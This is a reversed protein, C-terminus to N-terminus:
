HARNRAIRALEVLHVFLLARFGMGARCGWILWIVSAFPAWLATIALLLVLFVPVVPVLCLLFIFVTTRVYCDVIAKNLGPKGAFQLPTLCTTMLGMVPILTFILLIAFVAAMLLAALRTTMRVPCTCRRFRTELVLAQHRRRRVEATNLHHRPDTFQNCGSDPNTPSYHWGVGGEITQGCIWCWDCKCHQCTMHNCGGNKETEFNCRPCSKTGFVSANARTERILRAEYAKCNGDQRHAWSHYFCFEAGCGGEGSCKMEAQPRGEIRDPKCLKRCAPCERLDEDARKAAFLHLKRVVDPQDALLSAVEDTSAVAATELEGCKGASVGVPCFLEEVRGDEIRGKFYIQMCQHCTRHATDNCAAVVKGSRLAVNEYCVPCLFTAEPEATPDAVREWVWRNLSANSTLTSAVRELPQRVMTRRDRLVDVSVWGTLPGDTTSPIAGCSKSSAAEWADARSKFFDRTSDTTRGVIAPASSSSRCLSSKTQDFFTKCSRDCESTNPRDLGSSHPSDDPAVKNSSTVM